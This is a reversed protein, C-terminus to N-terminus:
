EAEVIAIINEVKLFTVDVDGDKTKLGAGPHFILKTGIDPGGMFTNIVEGMAHKYHKDPDITLTIGGATRPPEMKLFKVMFNGNQMKLKM